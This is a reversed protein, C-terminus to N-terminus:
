AGASGGGSPSAGVTRMRASSVLFRTTSGDGGGFFGDSNRRSSRSNRRRHLTNDEWAPHATGGHGILEARELDEGVALELHTVGDHGAEDPPAEILHEIPAHVVLGVVRAEALRHDLRQRVHR